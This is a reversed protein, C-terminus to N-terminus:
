IVVCRLNLYLDCDKQVGIDCKSETVLELFGKAIGSFVCFATSDLSDHMIRALEPISSLPRM